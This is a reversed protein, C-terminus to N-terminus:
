CVADLKEKVARCLNGDTIGVAAVERACGIARALASADVPLRLHEINYFKSKDALRKHTNESTGSAELVLLPARGPEAARMSECVRETGYVLRGARMCLGLMGLLASVARGDGTDRLTDAM